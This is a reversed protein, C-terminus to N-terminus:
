VRRSGQDLPERTQDLVVSFGDFLKPDLAGGDADHKHMHGCLDCSLDITVAPQQGLWVDAATTGADIIGDEPM